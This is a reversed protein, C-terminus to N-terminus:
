VIWKMYMDIQVRHRPTKHKKKKTYDQERPPSVREGVVLARHQHSCAYTNVVHQKQKCVHRSLFPARLKRLALRNALFNLNGTPCGHMSTYLLTMSLRAHRRRRRSWRDAISSPYRETERPCDDLVCTNTYSESVATNAPLRSHAPIMSNRAKFYLKPFLCQQQPISHFVDLCATSFLTFAPPPVFYAPLSLPIPLPSSLYLTRCSCGNDPKNLKRRCAERQIYWRWDQDQTNHQTNRM